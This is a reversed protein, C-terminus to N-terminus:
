VVKAIRLDRDKPKMLIQKITTNGKFHVQIGYKSCIHKFSEATGKTYPIVIQGIKAKNTPRNNTTSIHQNNNNTTDNSDGSTNNNTNNNNGTDEPNNNLVKNQVRKIAWHPLQM